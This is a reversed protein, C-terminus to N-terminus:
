KRPTKLTVTNEIDPDSKIMHRNDELDRVLIKGDTSYAAKLLDARAFHIPVLFYNQDKGLLIRM